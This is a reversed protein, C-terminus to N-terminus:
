LFRKSILNIWVLNPNFNCKELENPVLRFKSIQADELVTTTGAGGGGRVATTGPAPRCCGPHRARPLWLWALGRQRLPQLWPPSARGSWAPQRSVPLWPQAPPPSPKCPKHHTRFFLSHKFFKSSIIFYHFVISM